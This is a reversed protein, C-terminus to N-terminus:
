DMASPAPRRALRRMAGGTVLGLVLGGAAVTGLYVAAGGLGRSSGAKSLLDAAAAAGAALTWGLASGAVWWGAGAFHTRLLLAQWVGVVVGGVTVSWYLSYPVEWAAGAVDGILFPLALGLASSWAWPTARGLMVRMARGQLLGTGTGMGLGVLVQAGGVGIAEGLLAMVVVLPVGLMWGLWTAKLWVAFPINM